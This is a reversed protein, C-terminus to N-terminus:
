MSRTARCTPYNGCGWFEAGPNAGRRATRKVMLRRCSPCLPTGGRNNQAVTTASLTTRTARSKRLGRAFRVGRREIWNLLERFLVAAMGCVIVVPVAKWVLAQMFQDLQPNAM